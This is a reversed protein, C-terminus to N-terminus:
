RQAISVRVEEKAPTRFAELDVNTLAPVKKYDISGGKWYRTVTVGAGSESTHCALGVLRKKALELDANTADLDRKLRVYAQAAEEWATDTRVRTDGQTLPPARDLAVREMFDDWADRIGEWREPKPTHELLIGARGDFVYVHAQAAGTVMFQHQVQLQYHDPLQGSSATRWLESDRGKFPCKIELFLEGGFTIGDLSASYEGDVMVLPQMVHGTLGEYAERAKPELESGHRMAANVEVQARGTKILWLQYPTQWPSLGMVAGTESANRHLQRHAHWEPSGQALQVIRSM